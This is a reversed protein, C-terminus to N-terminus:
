ESLYKSSKSAHPLHYEDLVANLSPTSKLLVRIGACMVCKLLVKNNTQSLGMEQCGLTKLDERKKLNFGNNLGSILAQAKKNVKHKEMSCCLWQLTMLLIQEGLIFM